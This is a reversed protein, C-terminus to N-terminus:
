NDNPYTTWGGSETISDSELWDEKVGTELLWQDTRNETTKETDQLHFEVTLVYDTYKLSM